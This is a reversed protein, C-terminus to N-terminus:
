GCGTSAGCDHCLYCSGSPYAQGGCNSCSQMPMGVKAAITGLNSVERHTIIGDAKDGDGKATLFTNELWQAVFDVISTCSKIESDVIFGSPEFRQFRSKEVITQLPVGYQLALSVMQSWQDAFGSIMSGQKSLTIFIEGPTGDEYLGVHIYGEHGQIDFKKRISRTQNPLKRRTPVQEWVLSIVAGAAGKINDLEKKVVSEGGQDEFEELLELPQSGKSGNRYLALCKIGSEWAYLIAEKIDARTATTPMNITKSIAGSVFPQLAAMMDIHARWSLCRESGFSTDFVSLHEESLYPAGVVHGHQLVYGAIAEREDEPYGLAELGKEFVHCVIKEHGGGVLTKMTVLGLAPEAGTTDCDMMFSITGTPAIVTMQANRLMPDQQYDGLVAVWTKHLLDQSNLAESVEFHQSLIREVHGSNNQYAGFSGLEKALDYSTSYAFCHIYSMLKQGLCRGQESDYPVGMSMLLAGLNTMGLGITRYRKTTKGIQETPYDAMDVLIDQMVFIDRVQSYLQMGNEYTGNDLLNRWFIANLSALNCATNNLFLYESCPNSADINGDSACTHWRNITDTFQVGPDGCVWCADAVEDLLYQSEMQKDTYRISHNANQFNISDYASHEEVFSNSYGQRMLAQAKKEEIAKCEIFEKADPHSADLCVMKAARRKKGGSKIAGASADFARMFSVVGSACGGGSIPAGKHRINSLNVGAGSGQKFIFMEDRQLQCISELSDEVENIFCASAQQVKEPTGINFWVPSNFAWKQELLSRITRERFSVGNREEFFSQYGNASGYEMIADIVREFVQVISHEREETELQGWFYRSACINVARQSWSAPFLVDDQEFTIQGTTHDKIEARRLAMPVGYATEVQITDIGM